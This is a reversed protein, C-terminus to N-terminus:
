SRPKRGLLFQRMFGTREAKPPKIEAFGERRDRLWERRAVVEQDIAEALPEHEGQAILDRTASLAAAYADLWRVLNAKNALLLNSLADPDEGLFSVIQEFSGGALKQMERWASQHMISNALALALAQPLHEVGAILGDHEAPDLYYPRSQLLSVLSSVLSVADPHVNPGPTICYLSDRFLDADAADPGSGKSLVVPNGGVFSATDPLLEEAWRVVQEKLSATDTVVCGPKLHPALARLTEQISSIPIALIVLDAGECAGILNWDTKDVAKLKRAANAHSVDKDHGVVLLSQEAERLALGISTGICGTGVISIQIREAM